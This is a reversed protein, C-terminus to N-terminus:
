RAESPETLGEQVRITEIVRRTRDQTMERAALLQKVLQAAHQQSATVQEVLRQEAAMARELADIREGLLPNPM